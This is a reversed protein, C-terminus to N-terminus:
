SGQYKEESGGCTCNPCHGDCYSDDIYSLIEYGFGNKKKLSLLLDKCNAFEITAVPPTGPIPEGFLLVEFNGKYVYLRLYVATELSAFERHMAIGLIGYGDNLLPKDADFDAPIIGAEILADRFDNNDGALYDSLSELGDFFNLVIRRKGYEDNADPDGNLVVEFMDESVPFDAPSFELKAVGQDIGIENNLQQKELLVM